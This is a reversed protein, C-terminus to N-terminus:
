LARLAAPIADCTIQYTEELPVMICQGGRLFLPLDPLPEGVAIPELYATMKPVTQYSVMTLKRRAPLKFEMDVFNECILPHIGQPDRTRPPFPDVIMVSVGGSLFDVAKEVFLDIGKRSSKNGPSVLEIVARVQHRGIRVSIRSAKRAYIGAEPDMSITYATKQPKTLVNGDPESARGARYEPAQEFAVVDPEPGDVIREAMAFYGPPLLGQNLRDMIAATWRLHFSHYTGAEVTTWDHMPM